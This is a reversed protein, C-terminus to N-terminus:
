VQLPDFVLSWWAISINMRMIRTKGIPTTAQDDDPKIFDYSTWEFAPAFRLIGSFQM